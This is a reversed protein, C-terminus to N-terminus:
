GLLPKFLLKNNYDLENDFVVIQKKPVEFIFDLKFIIKVFKFYAIFKKM